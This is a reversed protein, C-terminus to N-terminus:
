AEEKDCNPCVAFIVPEYATHVKGGTFLHGFQVYFCGSEVDISSVEQMDCVSCWFTVSEKPYARHLTNM